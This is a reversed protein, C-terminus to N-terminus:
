AILGPLVEVIRGRLVADARQDLPTPEANIIVLRGGAALTREPLWAVPYVTLSTGIALFLDARDAAAEARALDTPDLNQGFSVTASKLIGGCALCAPDPEGARVRELTALMPQRDGCALCITERMSGHIEIVREPSNGAALHLGDINQTILTDIRGSRELRALALHGANPVASWAPHALRRQWSERRVSPDAVYYGINSLREARPDRTWVGEPGRFDPIGSDTSIGAGTLVVIRAAERLWAAVEASGADTM